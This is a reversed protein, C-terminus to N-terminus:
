EGVKPLNAKVINLFLLDNVLYFDPVLDYSVLAPHTKDIESLESGYHWGDAIMREVWANHNKEATINPNKWLNEVGAVVGAIREETYPTEPLNVARKYANVTNIVLLAIDKSTM